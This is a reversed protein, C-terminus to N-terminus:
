VRLRPGNPESVWGVRACRLMKWDALSALEDACQRETEKAMEEMQQYGGWGGSGGTRGASGGGWGGFGGGGWGSDGGWGSFGGGLGGWMRAKTLADVRRQLMKQTVEEHRRPSGGLDLMETVMKVILRGLPADAAAPERADLAFASRADRKVFIALDHAITRM